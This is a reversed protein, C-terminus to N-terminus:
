KNIIFIYTRLNFINDNQAIFFSNIIVFDPNCTIDNILKKSFVFPNDTVHKGTLNVSHDLAEINSVNDVM